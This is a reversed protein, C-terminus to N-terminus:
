QSSLLSQTFAVFGYFRREQSVIGHSGLFLQSGKTQKDVSIGAV